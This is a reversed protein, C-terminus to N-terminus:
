SRRSTLVSFSVRPDTSTTKYRSGLRKTCTRRTQRALNCYRCVFVDSRSVSLEECTRVKEEGRFFAYGPTDDVGYRKAVEMGTPMDVDVEVFAVDGGKGAHQGMRRRKEEQAIREFAQQVQYTVINSKSTFLAFTLAHSHLTSTFSALNTSFTLPSTTSSTISQRPPTATGNTPTYAQSAVSSLLSSAAPPLRATSPSVQPLNSARGFM